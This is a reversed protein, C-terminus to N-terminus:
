WRKCAQLVRCAVCQLLRTRVLRLNRHDLQYPVIYEGQFSHCCCSGGHCTCHVALVEVHRGTRMHHPMPALFIFDPM